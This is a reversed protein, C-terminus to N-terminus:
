GGELVFRMSHEMVDLVLHNCLVAQRTSKKENGQLETGQTGSPMEINKNSSKPIRLPGEPLCSESMKEPDVELRRFLNKCGLAEYKSHSTM